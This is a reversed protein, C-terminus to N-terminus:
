PQARPPIPRDPAWARLAKARALAAETEEAAVTAPRPELRLRVVRRDVRHIPLLGELVLDFPFRSWLPAELDAVANAPLFGPSRAEIARAGYYTFPVEVPSAGVEAGDIWVRAGPPMTEVRLSREACAPFAAIAAAAIARLPLRPPSPPIRVGPCPNKGTLPKALRRM